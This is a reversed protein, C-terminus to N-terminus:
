RVHCSLCATRPQSKHPVADKGAHCAQCKLSAHTNAADRDLRLEEPALNPQAGHCHLCVGNQGAALAGSPASGFALCLLLAALWPWASLCRTM